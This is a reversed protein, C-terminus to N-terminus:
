FRFEFAAGFLLAPDYDSEELLDGAADKIKLKGNFELGAFAAFNMRDNPSLRASFVLPISQDRGVGGAAMGKDDLRFEVNEYRGTVGFSWDDNLEYSLTLGPGQSSAIGSGTSLNWRESIDWDIALVPFVKTGDELRSFVGIGPGITLDDRLKWAMAAFLGWTRGDSFSADKEGNFRLTPAIFITGNEGFGFRGNLTIRFDDVKDWPEGGGFGSADNFDYSYAGGGVSLGISDRRSLAYDVAARVFWSDRAFGGTSDGFDAESQHVGLGDVTFYWPSTKQQQAGAPLAFLLASLAIAIIINNSQIM